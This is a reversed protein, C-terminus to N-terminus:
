DDAAGTALGLRAAVIPHEALLWEKDDRELDDLSLGYTWGSNHHREVAAVRCEVHSKFTYPEGEWIGRQRHYRDGVAIPRHCLGCHHAARATHETDSLICDVM